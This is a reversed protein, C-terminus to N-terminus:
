AIISRIYNHNLPITKAMTAPKKAQNIISVASLLIRKRDNIPVKVNKNIHKKHEALGDLTSEQM